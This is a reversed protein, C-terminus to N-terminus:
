RGKISNKFDKITTDGIKKYKSVINDYHDGFTYIDIEDLNLGLAIRAIESLYLNRFEFFANLKNAENPYYMKIIEDLIIVSNERCFDGYELFSVYKQELNELDLFIHYNENNEKSIGFYCWIGSSIETKRAMEGLIMTVLKHSNSLRKIEKSNGEYLNLGKDIKLEINRLTENDSKFNLLFEYYDSIVDIIEKKTM